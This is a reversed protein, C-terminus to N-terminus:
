WEEATGPPVGASSRLLSHSRPAGVRSSSRGRGLCRAPPDWRGLTWSRRAARPLAPLSHPGLHTVDLVPSLCRWKRHIILGLKGKDVTAATSGIIFPLPSLTPSLSSLSIGFGTSGGDLPAACVVKCNKQKSLPHWVTREGVAESGSVVNVFVLGLFEKFPSLSGPSSLSATSPLSEIKMWLRSSWDDWSTRCGNSLHHDYYDMGELMLWTVPVTSLLGRVSTLWRLGWWLYDSSSDDRDNCVSLSLCLQFASVPGESKLAQFKLWLETSDRQVWCLPLGISYTDNTDLWIQLTVEATLLFLAAQNETIPM